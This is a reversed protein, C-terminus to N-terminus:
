IFGIYFRRLCVFFRYVCVFAVYLKYVSVFGTYLTYSGSDFRYLVYLCIVVGIRFTYVGIQCRYSCSLCNM